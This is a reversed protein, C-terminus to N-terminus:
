SALEQAARILAIVMAGHTILVLGASTRTVEMSRGVYAIHAFVDLTLWGAIIWLWTSM